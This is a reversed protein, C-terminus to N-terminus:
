ATRPTTSSTPSSTPSSGSTSPTCSPAWARCPLYAELHAQNNWMFTGVRDGRGVGLRALAAALQEARKSVQHLQGRARRRPDVTFVKKEAYLWEGHRVIDSILLPADQMTSRM